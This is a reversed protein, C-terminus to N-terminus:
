KVRRALEAMLDTTSVRSLDTEIYRYAERFARQAELPVDHWMNASFAEKYKDDIEGGYPAEPPHVDIMAERNRERELEMAKIDMDFMEPMEPMKPMNGEKTVIEDPKRHNHRKHPGGSGGVSRKNAAKIADHDAVIYVLARKGVTKRTTFAGNRVQKSLFGAAAGKSVQRKEDMDIYKLLEDLTFTDGRKFTRDIFDKM